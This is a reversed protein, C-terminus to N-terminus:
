PRVTDRKAEEDDEEHDELRALNRQDICITAAQTWIIAVLICGVLYEHNGPFLAGLTVTVPTVFALAISWKRRRRM